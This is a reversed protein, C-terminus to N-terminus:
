FAPAGDNGLLRNGSLESCGVDRPHCLRYFHLLKPRILFEPFLAQSIAGTFGGAMALLKCKINMLLLWEARELCSFLGYLREM